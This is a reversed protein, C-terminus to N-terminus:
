ETKILGVIIGEVEEESKIFILTEDLFSQLGAKKM